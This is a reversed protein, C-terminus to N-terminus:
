PRPEQNKDSVCKGFANREDANTGYKGAFALRGMQGREAACSHAANKFDEADAEDEADMESKEAKAKSSVCKGYANNKNANTGYKEAFAGPDATREAKCEKAANERATEAEDQEEAAKRRVCRGFSDYKARFAERTASSKGREAKCQQKAARKHTDTPKATAGAPLALIAVAGLITMIKNV